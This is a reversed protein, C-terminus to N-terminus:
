IETMFIDASYLPSVSLQCQLELALKLVNNNGELLSYAIRVSINLLPIYM